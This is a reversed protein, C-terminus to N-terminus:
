KEAYTFYCHGTESERQDDLNTVKLDNFNFGNTEVEYRKGETHVIFSYGTLHGEMNESTLNIEPHGKHTFTGSNIYINGRFATGTAIVIFNDSQCVVKAGPFALANFSVLMSILLLFKM